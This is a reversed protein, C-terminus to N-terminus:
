GCNSFNSDFGLRKSIQKGDKRGQSLKAKKLSLNDGRGMWLFFDNVPRYNIPENWNLVHLLRLTQLSLFALPYVCAFVFLKHTLSRCDM